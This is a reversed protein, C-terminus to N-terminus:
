FLAGAHKSLLDIGALFLAVYVVRNFWTENIRKNLWIGLFVGVPVFPALKLSTWLTEATIIGLLGYPLMKAGNLATYYIVTTGVFRMRGLQQPLLFMTTIPGAAHSVTSTFGAAAGFGTGHRWDPKFARTSVGRLEVYVHRAVFLVAISGIFTALWHDDLQRLLLAGAAIGLMSGPLLLAVNRRDWSARYHWIAALDCASLIPLMIGVSEKPSIVLALMPTVLIGIGGGFGAKAIGMFVVATGALAWGIPTLELM